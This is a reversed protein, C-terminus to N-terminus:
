RPRSSGTAPHDANILDLIERAKVAKESGPLAAIVKSLHDKALEYKHDRFYAMGLRYHYAPDASYGTAAVEYEDIAERLQDQRDLIKALEYHAAWYKPDMEVSQRLKSIAEDTRGMADLCLALNLLIKQKGLVIPDALAIGYEAEAREHEGMQNYVLGLANHADPFRDRLKLAENLSKEAEPLESLYFQALGLNYYADPSKPNLDIAEKLVREANVFNGNGVLQSGITTLSSARVIPDVKPTASVCGALVLLALPAAVRAARPGRTWVSPLHPRPKM